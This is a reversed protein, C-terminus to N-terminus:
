WDCWSMATDIQASLTTILNRCDFCLLECLEDNRQCTIGFDNQLCLVSLFTSWHM